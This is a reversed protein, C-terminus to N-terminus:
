VGIFLLLRPTAIAAAGLTGGGRGVPINKAGGDLLVQQLVVMFIQVSNIGKQRDPM